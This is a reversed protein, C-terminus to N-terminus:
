RRSPRDSARSRGRRFRDELRGFEAILSSILVFYSPVHLEHSSSSTGGLMRPVAPRRARRSAEGSRGRCGDATPSLSVREKKEYGPPRSGLYGPIRSTRRYVTFLLGSVASFNGPIAGFNAPWGAEEPGSVLDQTLHHVDRAAADKTPSPWTGDYKMRPEERAPGTNSLIPGHRQRWKKAM